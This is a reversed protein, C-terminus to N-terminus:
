SVAFKMLKIAASDNLGGGVRKTTYFKVFPKKTYADRLVRVGTRDTILYGRGFDGFAISLSNSAIDPMFDDVVIQKGLLTFSEGEMIGAKFLYDGDSDKLKRVESFTLDNMMWSSNSRYGHYVAHFVDLLADASTTAFGGDVGSAIYGLEGFVESGNAVVTGALLGTPMKVGTGTIFAESEARAFEVGVEQGLWQEINFMGDDLMSQTAAPEAYLEMAPFDLQALQPTATEVRPDTEGVWGSTSGGVNHLRQFVASGVQQVRAVSRMGGMESMVRSINTDIEEPVLYGGESDVGENMSAKIQKDKLGAEAGKTFWERFSAKYVSKATDKADSGGGGFDGRNLSAEIKDLRVKEKLLEGVNANIKDVEANLLPDARGTKEIEGLRKDNAAQFDHMSKGLENIKEIIESM